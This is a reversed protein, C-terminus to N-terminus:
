SEAMAERIVGPPLLRTSVLQVQLASHRISIPIGWHRKLHEPHGQAQEMSILQISTCIRGPWSALTEAVPVISAAYISGSFSYGGFPDEYIYITGPALRSDKVVPHNYNIFSCAALVVNGGSNGGSTDISGISIATPYASALLTVDGNSKGPAGGSKITVNAPTTISGGGALAGRFAILNINGGAGGSSSSDFETIPTAGALNIIGGTASPGTIRLEVPAFPNSTVSPGDAEFAAGAIFVIDGGGGFSATSIRGAGTSTRIDRAAVVALPQGPFVLDTNILIDGGQNYFTPDGSLNLLGLSLDGAATFVHAEGATINVTATTRNLNLVVSGDGSHVNLQRAVIDGGLIATNIKEICGETGINVAGTLATISGLTNNILLNQTSLSSLAINGAQALISGSNVINGALSMINASANALISVHKCM